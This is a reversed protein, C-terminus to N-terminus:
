LTSWWWTTSNGTATAAALASNSASPNWPLDYNIVLSCFQLNIGEAGAETAIMISASEKFHEVLAARTDATRSGTIRDTGAHRKLWAQYIRPPRNVATPATSSCPKAQTPAKSWCAWCITKRAARNRSSSPKASQAWASWSPLPKAWPQSCPRARANDRITTAMRQFERLEAIEEALSAKSAGPADGDAEIWEEEIEDLSEYDKDLQEALSADEQGTPQASLQDQLRQAMTDLAGGIAYSSSALLKWLVLSILQRQGAPLANLSPRRLYDAVRDHLAQEEASPTFPEVMPIRRTYSIYPQVQRRLTRMCVSQLRSRLKALTDPNGLAGFQERFSPLDGFVREDVLSVM